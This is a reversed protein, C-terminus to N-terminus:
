LIYCIKSVLYPGIKLFVNSSFWEEDEDEEDDTDEEWDEEEFM